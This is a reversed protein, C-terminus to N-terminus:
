GEENLTALLTVERLNGCEEVIGRGFMSSVYLRCQYLSAMKNPMKKFKTKWRNGGCKKCPKNM